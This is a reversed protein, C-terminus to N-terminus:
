RTAEYLRRFFSQKYAESYQSLPKAYKYMIDNPDNTHPMGFCHGIEHWVVSNVWDQGWYFTRDAIQMRCPTESVWAVGLVYGKFYNDLVANESYQIKMSHSERTGYELKMNQSQTMLLLVAQSSMRYHDGTMELYIGYKPEATGCGALAFILLLIWKM